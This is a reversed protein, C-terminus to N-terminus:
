TIKIHPTLPSHLHLLPHPLTPPHRLFAGAMSVVQTCIIAATEVCLANTQDVIDVTEVVIAGSM